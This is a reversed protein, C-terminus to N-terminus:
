SLPRLGLSQRQANFQQWAPPWKRILKLLQSSSIGLRPASVAPDLGSQDLVDLAEALLAPFDAHERNVELRGARVRARWRDTPVAPPQARCRTALELRLRQLAVRRNADQSRKESAQGVLGTPRHTIVIATEVKNRHQGGPGSGRTRKVECHELLRDESWGAPHETTDLHM